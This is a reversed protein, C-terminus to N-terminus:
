TASERLALEGISVSSMVLSQAADRRIMQIGGTPMRRRPKRLSQGWTGLREILEPSLGSPTGEARAIVLSQDTRLSWLRRLHNASMATMDEQVFITEGSAAALGTQTAINSGRRTTHVILKVQPYQRALESVIEATHDISADDVVIMEFRSTLDPVLDLLYHLREGIVAQADRVPVVISLSDEVSLRERLSCRAVEATM